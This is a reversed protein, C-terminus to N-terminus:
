RFSLRRKNVSSAVHLQRASDVVKARTTGVVVCAPPISEVHLKRLRKDVHAFALVGQAFADLLQIGDRTRTTIRRALQCGGYNNLRIGKAVGNKTQTVKGRQRVWRNKDDCSDSSRMKHILQSVDKTTGHAKWSIAGPHVM